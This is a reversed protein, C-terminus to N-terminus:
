APSVRVVWGDPHSQLPRPSLLRLESAGAKEMVRFGVSSLFSTAQDSALRFDVPEGILRVVTPLFRLWAGNVGGGSSAEGFFDVVGECGFDRLARLTTEVASRSLYMSVGEWFFWSRRGSVFGARQLAHRLDEQSFDVQIRHVPDPIGRVKRSKRGSTAPHDIEFIRAGEWPLRFARMDYGAGLILVQEFPGGARRMADEM